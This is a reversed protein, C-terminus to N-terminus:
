FDYRLGVIIADDDSDANKAAIERDYTVSLYTRSALTWQGEIRWDEKEYIDEGDEDLFSYGALIKFNDWQYAVISDIGFYKENSNNDTDINIYDATIGFSFNNLSFEVGAIIQDHQERSTATSESDRNFQSFAIAPSVRFGDNKYNMRYSAMIGNDLRENENNGIVYAAQIEHIGFKGEYQLTSDQRNYSYSTDISSLGFNYIGPTFNKYKDTIKMVQYLPNKTRGFILTGFKDNEIGLYNYRAELSEGADFRTDNKETRVQWEFKGLVRTNEVASLERSMDFGLRGSMRGALDDESAFSEDGHAIQAELRGYIDLSNTDDKYVNQAQAMGSFCLTSIILTLLKKNTVM